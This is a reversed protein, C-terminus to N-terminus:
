RCRLTRADTVVLDLPVDWAEPVFADVQQFDHAVGILLPRAPRSRERLFAFSRDYFGGGMGLRTGISDFAVLPTLVLDLDAPQLCEAPAAEPEPINFRNRRLPAGPRYPAFQLSRPPVGTLVPLFVQGGEAWARELVPGPDLEGDCAWYGAIRVARTLPWSKLHRAVALAARQRAAAPLGRRLARLQRRLLQSDIIVSRSVYFLSAFLMAPDSPASEVQATEPRRGQVM